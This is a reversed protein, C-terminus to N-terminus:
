HKALEHYNLDELLAKEAAFHFKTYDILKLLIGDLADQAKGTEKAEHLENIIGVLKKHQANIEEIGTNYEKKWSIFIM